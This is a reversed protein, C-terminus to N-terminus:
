TEMRRPVQGMRELDNPQRLWRWLDGEIETFLVLITSCIMTLVICIVPQQRYNM